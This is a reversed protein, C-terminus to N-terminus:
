LVITLTQKQMKHSIQALLITNIYIYLVIVYM